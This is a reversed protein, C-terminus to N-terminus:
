RSFRLRGRILLDRGLREIGGADVRAARDLRRLALPAVAAVGDGGILLPAVFFAVEDVVRARVAEAAIQGGGEIVLRTVGRAGLARVVAGFAVRGRRGKLLIVEIGQRRLAAVKGTAAGRPAVVWTPAAGDRLVRARRPLDVDAGCVVVRIPNAGRRTRCTLQPDDARVTGAGVLVADAAARMAHVRRRASPGTIWRSAGRATALRGDLSMALKLVTWPRGRLLRSRYGVLLDRAAPACVGISVRAGAARLARVGRGHVRPNPDVVAVVVRRLRLPRLADICPPTRGHHVCPELTVYLDAGRAQSGARRLAEVEAHPGGARRHFGEGVIRGHRVFVAGVPPNPFTRGLGRAALALARDMFREDARSKGKM